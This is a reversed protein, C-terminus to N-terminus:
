VSADEVECDEGTLIRLYLLAVAEPETAARTGWGNLGSDM